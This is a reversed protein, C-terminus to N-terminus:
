YGFSRMILSNTLASTAAAAAASAASASAASAQTTATSASAAASTASNAANTASTSANSAQTTATSASTSASSASSSASSASTTASSASNAANTASTAANSAQTTATSADAAASSASSAANSASTAASSSASLASSASSAANSASTSASSASAAAASASAAAAAANGLASGASASATQSVARVIVNLTGAAPATAFTIQSPSSLTVQPSAGIVRQLEYGGSGERVFVDIELISAFAQSLTFVVNSGNGSFAEAYGSLSLAAPSAILLWYGATLDNSFSATATHPSVCIYTSGSVSVLDNRLYGTATVWVGRPNPEGALLSRVDEGLAEATVSGNALAGDSRRIDALAAITELLSTSVNDFEEDVQTALLPATPNVAQFNTFSYGRIYPAPNAM